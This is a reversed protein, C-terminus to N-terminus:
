KGGQLAKKLFAMTAPWAITQAQGDERANGGMAFPTQYDNPSYGDGGVLHGAKPFSLLETELGAAKRSTVINNAMELAPWMQDDGGAILLLKGKFNEVAIRAAKAREPNAKRGEIYIHGLVPQTTAFAKDLGANPTFPLPKGQYSFSGYRGAELLRDMAFGEWVLDSPAIAVVAKVWPLLSASLLAMEAGKSGGMLAIHSSDIDNRAALTKYLADLGDIPIDIFDKPLGPVEQGRPTNPSYYPYSVAAFGRAALKLGFRRGASDGGESGGLIIVVPPKSDANVSTAPLYIKTGAHGGITETKVPTISSRLAFKMQALQQQGALATLRTEAAQWDADVKNSPQMSWFLGAADVGTYSGAKSASTALTINGQADAQMEVTSMYIPANPAFRREALINVTQGPQLGKLSIGLPEGSLAPNSATMSFSAAEQASAHHASFAGLLLLSALARSLLPEAYHHLYM